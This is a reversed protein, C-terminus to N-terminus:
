ILSRIRNLLVIRRQRIPFRPLAALFSPPTKEFVIVFFQPSQRAFKAVSNKRQAAFNSRVIVLLKGLFTDSEKGSDDRHNVEDFYVVVSLNQM